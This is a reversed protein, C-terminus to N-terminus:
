LMETEECNLEHSVNQEWVRHVKLKSQSSEEMRNGLKHSESWCSQQGFLVCDWICVGESSCPVESGSSFKMLSGGVDKYLWVLGGLRLLDSYVPYESIVCERWSAWFRFYWQLFECWFLFSDITWPILLWSFLFLSDKFYWHNFFFFLFWLAVTAKWNNKQVNCYSLGWEMIETSIICTSSLHADLWSQKSREM